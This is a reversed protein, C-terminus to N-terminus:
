DNNGIQHQHRLCLARVSIFIIKNIGLFPSIFGDSILGYLAVHFTHVSLLSPHFGVSETRNVRGIGKGVFQNDANVMLKIFEMGSWAMMAKDMARVWLIFGMRQIICPFQNRLTSVQNGIDNFYTAMYVDRVVLPLEFVFYKITIYMRHREEHKTIQYFNTNLVIYLSLINTFLAFIALFVLVIGFAYQLRRKAKFLVDYLGVIYEFRECRLIERQSNSITDTMTTTTTHTQRFLSRLLKHMREFRVLLNTVCNKMHCIVLTYVIQETIECSWFLLNMLLQLKENFMAEVVFLIILYLSFLTFEIWFARNIRKYSIPPSIRESFRRDFTLLVDFFEAHPKRNLTCVFILFLSAYANGIARVLKLVKTMSSINGLFEPLRRSSLFIVYGFYTLSVACMYVLYRRKCEFRLTRPNQLFPCVSFIFLIINLNRYARYFTEM